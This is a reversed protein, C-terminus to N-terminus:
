MEGALHSALVPESILKKYSNLLCFYTFIKSKLKAYLLYIDSNFLILVYLYKGNTTQTPM